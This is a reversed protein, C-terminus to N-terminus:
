VIQALIGLLRELDDAVHVVADLNEWQGCESSKKVATAPKFFVFSFLLFCSFVFEKVQIKTKGQLRWLHLIKVGEM